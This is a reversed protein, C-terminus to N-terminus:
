HNANATWYMPRSQFIADVIQHIVMFNPVSMWPSWLIFGLSWPKNFSAPVSDQALPYSVHATYSSSRYHMAIPEIKALAPEPEPEPEPKPEPETSKIQERLYIQKAAFSASWIKSRMLQEGFIHRSSSM